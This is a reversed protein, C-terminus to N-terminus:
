LGLELIGRYLSDISAGAERSKDSILLLRGEPDGTQIFGLATEAWLFLGAAYHTLEAIKAPGPWDSPLSLSYQKAIDAFRATFFHQLDSSTTSNVDHGTSLQVHQSIDMLTNRIDPYDRSTILLKFAKPLHSWRRLSRLFSTWQKDDSSCEDLADMVVVLHTLSLGETNNRLPGEILHEFQQEVDAEAPQKLNDRLVAVIREKLNVSLGALDYAVCRWVPMPGRLHAIDRRFFFRACPYKSAVTSSITTKGAGPSGRIWLINPQDPDTLWTDIVDLVDRRTGDMCRTGLAGRKPPDLLNRLFNDVNDKKLEDVDIVVQTLM